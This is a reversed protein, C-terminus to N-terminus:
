EPKDARIMIWGPVPGHLPDLRSTATCSLGHAPRFGHPQRAAARRPCALPGRRRGSLPGSLSAPPPIHPLARARPAAPAAPRGGTREVRRMRRRQRVRRLLGAPAARACCCSIRLAHLAYADGCQCAVACVRAAARRCPAGRGQRDRGALRPLYGLRTDRAGRSRARPGAPAKRRGDRSQVAEPRPPALALLGLAWAAAARRARPRGTTSTSWWTPARGWGTCGGTWGRGRATYGCRM